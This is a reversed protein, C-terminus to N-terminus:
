FEFCCTLGLAAIIGVAFRCASCPASARVVGFPEAPGLKSATARAGVIVDHSAPSGYKYDTCYAPACKHGDKMCQPPAEKYIGENDFKSNVTHDEGTMNFWTMMGLDEHYLVHCHMVLAGSYCDTQFRVTANFDSGPLQMLPMHDPWDGFPLQFVDQFDGVDFYGGWLEYYDAFGYSYVEAPNVHMHWSHGDIGLMQVQVVEGVPFSAFPHAGHFTKNQISYRIPQLVYASPAIPDGTPSGFPSVAGFENTMTKGDAQVDPVNAELPRGNEWNVSPEARPAYLRDEPTLALLSHLYRPPSYVTVEPEELAASGGPPAEVTVYLLTQKGGIDSPSYASQPVNNRLQFSGEEWCRMIVQCRSGAGLFLGRRIERPYKKLWASDKAILRMECPAERGDATRNFVVNVPFNDGAMIFRMRYWKGQHIKMTPSYQGNVTFASGIPNIEGQKYGFGNAYEMKYLRDGSANAVLGARIAVGCLATYRSNFPFCAMNQDQPAYKLFSPGFYGWQAEHIIVVQEPMSSIWDPAEGPSDDIILAGIMGGGTQLMTTGHLHGHYWSTGSSHYPSLEYNYTYTTGPEIRTTLVEDQPLLGSVHWGHVHLNTANPTHFNNEHAKMMTPDHPDQGVNQYYWEGVPAGMPNEPNGQGERRQFYTDDPVDPGLSNVLHVIVRDGRMVRLTPGPYTGNYLRTRVRIGMAPLEIWGWTLEITTELLGDVASVEVPTNLPEANMAAMDAGNWQSKTQYVAEDGAVQPPEQVGQGEFPSLSGPQAGSGRGAVLSLEREIEAIYAPDMPDYWELAAAQQRPRSASGKGKRRSHLQVAAVGDDEDAECSPAAAEPAAPAGLGAALLALLAARAPAM